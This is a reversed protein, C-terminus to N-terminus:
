MKATNVVLMKLISSLNAFYTSYIVDCLRCYNAM